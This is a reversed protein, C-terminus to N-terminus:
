KAAPRPTVVVTPLSATPGLSVVNHVVNIIEEVDVLMGGLTSLGRELWMPAFEAALAPDWNNAAGRGEANVPVYDINGKPPTIMRYRWEDSVLAVWYGTPDWPAAAKPLQPPPAAGRQAAIGVCGLVFFLSSALFRRTSLTM